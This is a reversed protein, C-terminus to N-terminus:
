GEASDQVPMEICVEDNEAFTLCVTPSTGREPVESLGMLMMHLGGPALVLTEGAQIVLEGAHVMRRTGDEQPQMDHVMTHHAFEAHGGILTIAADTNNTLSLYGAMSSSVPPVARLWAGEIAIPDSPTTAPSCATLFAASALLWKSYPKLM